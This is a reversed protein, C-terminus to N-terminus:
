GDSSALARREKKWKAFGPRVERVAEIVKAVSEVLIDYDFRERALEILRAGESLREPQRILECIREALRAPYHPDSSGRYAVRMSEPLVRSAEGVDSALVYRGAAMYLPLKGTTRVQGVVDNTQTSLCVDMAEIYSPLGAFPIRGAFRVRDEIGERRCRDRLRALGDGDGVVLGDVPQDRLLRIVEILESGYCSRMRRNWLMSGVIGITFRGPLGLQRQVASGLGARFSTVDVGDPIFTAEIGRAALLERHVTGRVVLADAAVFGFRELGATLAQKVPGRGIARGLETIADGTDIIWRCGRLSRCLFAAVVGSYAMDLVYCVDPGFRTLEGAMRLLSAVKRQSRHIIRVDYRDALRAAFATARQAMASEPTGNVVFALRTV